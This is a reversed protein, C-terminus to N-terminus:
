ETNLHEKFYMGLAFVVLLTVKKEQATTAKSNHSWHQIYFSKCLNIERYKSGGVKKPTNSLKHM